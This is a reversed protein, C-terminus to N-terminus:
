GGPLGIFGLLKCWKSLHVQMISPDNRFLTLKLKKTTTNIVSRMTSCTFQKALKFSGERTFKHVGKKQNRLFPVRFDSRACVNEKEERMIGFKTKVRREWRNEITKHVLHISIACGVPLSTHYKGM